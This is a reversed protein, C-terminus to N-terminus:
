KKSLRFVNKGKISNVRGSTFTTNDNQIALELNVDTIENIQIEKTNDLILVKASEDKFTWTGSSPWLPSGGSSTYSNSTFKITFDQYLASEDIGDVTVIPKNWEGSILMAETKEKVTPEDECGLLCITPFLLITLAMKINSNKMSIM